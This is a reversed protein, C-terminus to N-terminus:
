DNDQQEADNKIEFVYIQFHIKSNKAVNQITYEIKGHCVLYVQFIHQFIMLSVQIEIVHNYISSFLTYMMNHDYFLLIQSTPFEMLDLAFKNM